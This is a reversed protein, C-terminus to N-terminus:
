RFGSVYQGPPLTPKSDGQRRPLGTQSATAPLVAERCEAALPEIRRAICQMAEVRLMSTSLICSAAMYGLVAM